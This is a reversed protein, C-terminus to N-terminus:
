SFFHSRVSDSRAVVSSLLGTGAGLELGVGKYLNNKIIKESLKIMKDMESIDHYVYSSLIEDVSLLSLKEAFEERNIYEPM